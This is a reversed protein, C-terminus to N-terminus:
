SQEKKKKEGIKHKQVGMILYIVASISVVAATFLSGSPFNTSLTGDDVPM